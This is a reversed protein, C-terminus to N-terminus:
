PTTLIRGGVVHNAIPVTINAAVWSCRADSISEWIMLEPYLGRCAVM